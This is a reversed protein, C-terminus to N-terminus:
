LRTLDHRTALMEDGTEGGRDENAGGAGYARGSPLVSEWTNSDARQYENGNGKRNAIIERAPEEFVPDRHQTWVAAAVFRMGNRASM